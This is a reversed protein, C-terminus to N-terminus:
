GTFARYDTSIDVGAGITARLARTDHHELRGIIGAIGDLLEIAVIPLSARQLDSLVSEGPVEGSTAPM